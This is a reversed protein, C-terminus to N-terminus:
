GDGVQFGAVSSMAVSNTGSVITALGNPIAGPNVPRAGYRTIDVYPSPGKFALNVDFALPNPSAVPSILASGVVGLPSGVSGTGALTADTHVVVPPAALAGFPTGTDDIGGVPNVAAPDGTRVLELFNEGPVTQWKNQPNSM